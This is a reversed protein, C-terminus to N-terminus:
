LSCRACEVIIIRSMRESQTCIESKQKLGLLGQFYNKRKDEYIANVVNM